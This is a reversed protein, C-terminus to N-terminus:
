GKERNLGIAILLYTYTNNSSDVIMKIINEMTSVSM